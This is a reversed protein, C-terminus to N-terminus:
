QTVCHDGNTVLRVKLAEQAFSAIKQKLKRGV